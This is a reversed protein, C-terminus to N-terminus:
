DLLYAELYQWLINNKFVYVQSQLCGACTLINGLPFRNSPIGFAMSQVLSEITFPANELNEMAFWLMKGLSKTVM